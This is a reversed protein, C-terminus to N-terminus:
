IGMTRFREVSVNLEEYSIELCSPNQDQLVMQTKNSKSFIRETEARSRWTKTGKNEQNRLTITISFPFSSLFCFRLSFVPIFLLFWQFASLFLSTMWHRQSTKLGGATCRIRLLSKLSTQGWTMAHPDSGVDSWCAQHSHSGTSHLAHSLNYFFDIPRLARPSAM